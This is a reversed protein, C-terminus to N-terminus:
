DERGLLPWASSNPLGLSCDGKRGVRCGPSNQDEFDRQPAIGVQRSGASMHCTDASDGRGWYGTCLLTDAEM